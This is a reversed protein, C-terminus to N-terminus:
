TDHAYQLERRNGAPLFRSADVRDSVVEFKMLFWSASSGVRFSSARMAQSGNEPSRREDNEPDFGKPLV